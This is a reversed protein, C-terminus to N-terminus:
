SGPWFVLLAWIIVAIAALGGLYILTGALAIASNSERRVPNVNIRASLSSVPRHTRIAELYLDRHQMKIDEM